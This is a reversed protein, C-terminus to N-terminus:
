SCRPVALEQRRRRFCLLTSHMEVYPVAAAAEVVRHRLRRNRLLTGSVIESICTNEPLVRPHRKESPYHTLEEIHSERELLDHRHRRDRQALSRGSGFSPVSCTPAGPSAVSSSITSPGTSNTSVRLLLRVPLTNM